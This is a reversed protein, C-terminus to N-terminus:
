SDWLSFPLRFNYSKGHKEPYLASDWLSFPLENHLEVLIEDFEILDFRMLLVAVYSEDSLFMYTLLDLSDWLSFPLQTPKRWWKAWASVNQWSDWLSFPLEDPIIFILGLLEGKRLIEYPSRCGAIVSLIRSSSIVQGASDWLSFPLKAIKESLSGGKSMNRIEYPSRCGFQAITACQAIHAILIEYPSRCCSRFHKRGFGFCEMSDWLSFPLTLFSIFAKGKGSNYVCFRM